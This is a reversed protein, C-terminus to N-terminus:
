IINAVGFAITNLESTTSRFQMSYSMDDATPLKDTVESSLFLEGDDDIFGSVHRIPSSENILVVGTSRTVLLVSDSLSDDPDRKM